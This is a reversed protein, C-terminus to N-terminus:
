QWPSTVQCSSAGLKACLHINNLATQIDRSTKGLSSVSKGEVFLMGDDAFLSTDATKVNEPLDDIMSIFASPSIMAGQATGNELVVTDSLASGVRVQITRDGLFADMWQFMHGNIGLRKLKIMLGKRWVMDFAKEMDLFVALVHGKTNLRKVITDHLRATQDITSHHRRFGSQVSSM